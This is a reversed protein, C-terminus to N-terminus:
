ASTPRADRMVVSGDDDAEPWPVGASRLEDEFDLEALRAVIREDWVARVVAQAPDTLEDYSLEGALVRTIADDDFVSRGPRRRRVDGLM